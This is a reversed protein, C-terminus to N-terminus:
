VWGTPKECKCAPLASDTVFGDVSGISRFRTAPTTSGEYGSNEVLLLCVAQLPVGIQAHYQSFAAYATFDSPYYKIRCASCARWEHM